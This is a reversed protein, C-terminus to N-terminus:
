RPRKEEFKEPNISRNIAINTIEIEEVLLGNHFTSIKMPFNLGNVVRHESMRMEVSVPQPAKFRAIREQRARMFTARTFRRDFSAVSVIVPERQPAVITELLALPMHTQRDLTMLTKYGDADRVAIVDPTGVETSDIGGYSFEFPWSPLSRLLWGLTFRSISIKVAQLQKALNEEVEDANVVRRNDRTSPPVPIPYVWTEKGNIIQLFDFSNEYITTGKERLRFKDPFAFDFEVKSTVNKEKEQVKDPATVLAYKTPRRVKGNVSLTQLNTNGLATRAQNLLILAQSKADQPAPQAIATVIVFSLWIILLFFRM